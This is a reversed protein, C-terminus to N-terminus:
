RGARGPPIGAVVVDREHGPGVGVAVGVGLRVVPIEEGVEGAAQRGVAARAGLAVVRGGDAPQDRQRQHDQGSVGVGAAGLSFQERLQPQGVARPLQLPVGQGQPSQQQPQHRCVTM